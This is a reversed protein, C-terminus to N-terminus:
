KKFIYNWNAPSFLRRGRTSHQKKMAIRSLKVQIDKTMMRGLINVYEVDYQRIKVIMSQVPSPHMSIRMVETKEVNVEMGYCRGGEIIRDIMGRLVKEEEGLLM